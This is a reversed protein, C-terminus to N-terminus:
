GIRKDLLNKNQLNTLMLKWKNNCDSSYCRHDNIKWQYVCAYLQSHLVVWFRNNNVRSDTVQLGSIQSWYSTISIEELIYWLCLETIKSKFNFDNGIDLLMCYGYGYQYNIIYQMLITLSGNLKPLAYFTKKHSTTHVYVQMLWLIYTQGQFPPYMAVSDEFFVPM